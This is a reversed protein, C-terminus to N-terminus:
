TRSIRRSSTTSAPRVSFESLHRSSRDSSLVCVGSVTDGTVATCDVFFVGDPFTSRQHLFKGMQTAVMTKGVGEEGLM